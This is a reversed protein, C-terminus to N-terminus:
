PEPALADFSLATKPFRMRASEHLALCDRGEHVLRYGREQLFEACAVRELRPLHGLEFLLINPTCYNFDLSRLVEFDAGEADVQLLNLQSLQYKKLLSTLSMCPVEIEQIHSSVGPLFREHKEIHARSFSGLQDYYVSPPRKLPKMCYFSRRGEFEAIAINELSLRPNVSFRQRLREFIYPVPEVLIGSWGYGQVLDIIPDGHKADNSGVQVFRVEGCERALSRLLKHVPGAPWPAEGLVRMRIARYFRWLRPRAAIEARLRQSFERM